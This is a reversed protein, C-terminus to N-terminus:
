RGSGLDKGANPVLGEALDKRLELGVPAYTPDTPPQGNGIGARLSRRSRFPLLTAVLGSDRPEHGARGM